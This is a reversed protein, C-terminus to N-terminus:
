FRFVYNDGDTSAILLTDIVYSHGCSVPYNFFQFNETPFAM